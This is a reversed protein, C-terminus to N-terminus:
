LLHTESINSGCIPFRTKLQFYKFYLGNQLGFENQIERWSKFSGDNKCIHLVQNINAQKFEKFIFTENGIKLFANHWFCQTKVSREDIPDSSCNHWYAIITQYFRPLYKLLSSKPCFHSHFPNGPGFAKNLFFLPITKWQHANDDYLRKIWSLQLAKLKLTIDVSQLGGKEYSNCLTDQKIKSRKGNWLFNKQIKQLTTITFDPVESLYANYVIKSIALTKFITIKGELTLNRQRWVRLLNEIKGVTDSFNNENKL